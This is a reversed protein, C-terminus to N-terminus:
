GNLAEQIDAQIEVFQKPDVLSLKAADYKKLIGKAVDIDKAVLVTFEKALSDLTIRPAEEAPPAVTEVNESPDTSTKATQAKTAAPKDVKKEPTDKLTATPWNGKLQNTLAEIAKTLNKVEDELAM